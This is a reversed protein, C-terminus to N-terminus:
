KLAMRKFLQMVKILLKRHNNKGRFCLLLDHAYIIILKKLILEKLIDALVRNFTSNVNKLGFPSRLFKITSWDPM